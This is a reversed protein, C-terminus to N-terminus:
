VEAKKQFYSGKKGRTTEHIFNITNTACWVDDDYFREIATFFFAIKNIHMPTFSHVDVCCNLMNKQYKWASHIHGVLNFREARGQTPYHTAYCSIPKGGPNPADFEIGFGEPVVVDFVTLLQELTWNEDHNGRILTKKGNLQSVSKLWHDPNNARKSVIDGIVLVKDSPKVIRNHNAKITGFMEADDKFPRQMIEMNQEGLHHDSILWDFMQM